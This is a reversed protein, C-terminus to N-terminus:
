PCTAKLYRWKGYQDRFFSFPCYGFNKLITAIEKKQLPDFEMFLKGWKKLHNKAQPLFKCIVDLGDPGALLAKKPEWGLVSKDVLHLRKEAVYPPNAFIYDYKKKINSFIDSQIISFRKPNIGNLKANQRIQELYKKEKEAFDVSSNPLHKLLAIGICGSGAFIDLCYLKKNNTIPQLKGTKLKIDEIAKKVWYETEPRPIFPRKSLDIKCGLFKVFGKKYQEPKEIIIKQV